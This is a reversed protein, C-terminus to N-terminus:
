LELTAGTFYAETQCASRHKIISKSSFTEKRLAWAHHLCYQGIYKVLLHFFLSNFICNTYLGFKIQMCNLRIQNQEHIKKKFRAMGPCKKPMWEVTTDAGNSVDSTGSRLPHLGSACVPEWVCSGDGSLCLCVDISLLLNDKLILGILTDLHVTPKFSENKNWIM